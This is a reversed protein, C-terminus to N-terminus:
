YRWDRAYIVEFPTISLDTARKDADEEEEEEEVRISSSRGPKKTPCCRWCTVEKLGGQREETRILATLDTYMKVKKFNRRRIKIIM